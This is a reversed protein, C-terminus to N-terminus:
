KTLDDEWVHVCMHVHTYIYTYTYVCVYMCPYICIYVCICISVFVYVYLPFTKMLHYSIYQVIVDFYPVKFELLAKVNVKQSIGM